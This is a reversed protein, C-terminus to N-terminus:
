RQTRIHGNQEGWFIWDETMRKVNGAHEPRMPNAGTIAKLACFWHGPRQKMEELILPTADMGLGIIRLYAPHLFKNELSSMMSTDRRWTEALDNFLRLVDKAKSTIGLPRDIALLEGLRQQLRSKEVDFFEAHVAYQFDAIGDIVGKAFDGVPIDLQARVAYMAVLSEVIERIDHPSVGDVNPAIQSVLGTVFLAANADKLASLLQSYSSDPVKLLAIIGPQYQEPVSISSM